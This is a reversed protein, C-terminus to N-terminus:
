LVAEMGDTCHCFLVLLHSINLTGSGVLFMISILDVVDFKRRGLFNPAVSRVCQAVFCSVVGGTAVESDSM